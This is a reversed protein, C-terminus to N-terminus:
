YLLVSVKNNLVEVFGGEIEFFSKDNKNQHITIKGKKLASILPAHQNLIQFSGDIGPLQVADVDGEFVKKEPSRIELNLM